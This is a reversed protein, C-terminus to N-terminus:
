DLRFPEVLLQDLAKCMRNELVSRTARLSNPPRTAAPQESTQEQVCRPPTLVGCIMLLAPLLPTPHVSDHSCFLILDFWAQKAVVGAEKAFFGRRWRSSCRLDVWNILLLSCAAVWYFCSHSLCRWV